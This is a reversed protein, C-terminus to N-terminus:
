SFKHAHFYFLSSTCDLSLTAGSGSHLSCILIVDLPDPDVTEVLQATYLKKPCIFTMFRLVVRPQIM